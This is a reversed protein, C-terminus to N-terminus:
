KYKSLMVQLRQMWAQDVGEYNSYKGSGDLNAFQLYGKNAPNQLVTNIADVNGKAYMLWSANKDQEYLRIMAQTGWGCWAPTVRRDATNFIYVNHQADWLVRNMAHGLAQAKAVYSNDNTAAAYLLFAEVMIANDYTFFVNNRLGNEEFQWAYLGTSADYMKSNLWSNVSNAWDLYVKEGTLQYLKSFLQLALGNTQTPKVTRDTTWWFGGGHTQDFLGSKILWDACRKAKDLYADKYAGTSLEYAELYVMGSLSNDDVYKIGSAGTGDLAAFGFYGGNPDNKDWLHEMWDSTQNMSALYSADGNAVMAADAYIQSVTYWEFASTTNTTTNVQYSKYPTLLNAVIFSHVEKAKALYISAAPATSGGGPPPSVVAPKGPADKAKSCGASLLLATVMGTYLYKNM